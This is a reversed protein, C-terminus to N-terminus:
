AYGHVQGSQNEFVLPKGLPNFEPDGTRKLAAAQLFQYTLDLSARGTASDIKPHYVQFYYALDGGIHFAPEMKPVVTMRGLLFPDGSDSHEAPELRAALTISSLSFETGLSP